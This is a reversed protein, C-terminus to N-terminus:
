FNKNDYIILKRQSNKQLFIANGMLWEHTLGIAISKTLKKIQLFVLNINEKKMIDIILGSPIIKFKM